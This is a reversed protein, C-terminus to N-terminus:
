QIDRLFKYQDVQENICLSHIEKSQKCCQYIYKYQSSSHNNNSHYKIYKLIHDPVIHHHKQQFMCLNYLGKNTNSLIQYMKYEICQHNNNLQIMINILNWMLKNQLINHWDLYRYIHTNYEGMNINNNYHWKIQSLDQCSLKYM